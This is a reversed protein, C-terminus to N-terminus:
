LQGIPNLHAIINAASRPAPSDPAPNIHSSRPSGARAKANKPAALLRKRKLKAVSARHRKAAAARDRGEIQQKRALEGLAFARSAFSRTFDETIRLIPDAYHAARKKVFLPGPGAQVAAVIAKRRARLVTQTDEDDAPDAQLIALARRGSPHAASFDDPVIPDLEDNSDSGSM